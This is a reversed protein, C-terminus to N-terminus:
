ETRDFISVSNSGEISGMYAATKGNMDNVIITNGDGYADLLIAKKGEKDLVTLSRCTIDGFM